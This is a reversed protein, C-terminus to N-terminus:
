RASRHGTGFISEHHNLSFRQDFVRAETFHSTPWSCAKGQRIGYEM